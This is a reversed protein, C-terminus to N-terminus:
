SYYRPFLILSFYTQNYLTLSLPFLLSRSSTSDSVFNVISRYPFKYAIDDSMSEILRSLFNARFRM